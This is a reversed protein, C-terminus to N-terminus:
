GVPHVRIKKTAQPPSSDAAPGRAVFVKTLDRPVPFFCRRLSPGGGGCNKRKAAVPSRPPKRPAPPCETCPRLLSAASMPTVFSADDDVLFAVGRRPTTPITAATPTVCGTNNDDVVVDGDLSPLSTVSRPTVCGADVDDDVGSQPPKLNPIVTAATPTVCGTGAADEGDESGEETRIPRIVALESLELELGM